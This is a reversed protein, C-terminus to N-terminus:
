RQIDAGNRKCEDRLIKRIVGESIEVYRNEDRITKRMIAESM